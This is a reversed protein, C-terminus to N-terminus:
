FASGHQHHQRGTLLRFLLIFLFLLFFFGNRASRFGAARFSILGGAGLQRATNETFPSLSHWSFHRFTFVFQFGVFRSGFAKAQRPRPHEHAGFTSFAVQAAAGGFAGLAQELFHERHPSSADDLANM